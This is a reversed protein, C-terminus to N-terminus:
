GARGLGAGAPRDTFQQGLPCHSGKVTLMGFGFTPALLWKTEDLPTIVGLDEVTEPFILPCIPIRRPFGCFHATIPSLCPYEALSGHSM